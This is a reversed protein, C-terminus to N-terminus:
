KTSRNPPHFSPLPRLNLLLPCHAILLSLSAFLSASHAMSSVSKQRQNVSIPASKETNKNKIKAKSESRRGQLRSFGVTTSLGARQITM